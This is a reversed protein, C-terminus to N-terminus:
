SKNPFIFKLFYLPFTLFFFFNHSFLLLFFNIDDFNIIKENILLIILNFWFTKENGTNLKIIELNNIEFEKTRKRSWHV